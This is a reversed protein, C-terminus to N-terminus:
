PPTHEGEDDKDSFFPPFDTPKRKPESLSAIRNAEKRKQLEKEILYLQVELIHLDVRTLTDGEGSRLREILVKGQDVFSRVYDRLDM